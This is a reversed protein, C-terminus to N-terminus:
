RLRSWDPLPNRFAIMRINGSCRRSITRGISPLAKQAINVVAEWQPDPHMTLALTGEKKAADLDINSKPVGSAVASAGGSAPAATSGCAALLLSLAIVLAKM